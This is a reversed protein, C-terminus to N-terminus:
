ELAKRVVAIGERNGVFCFRGWAYGDRAGATEKADKADKQLLAIVEHKGDILMTTSPELFSGSVGM